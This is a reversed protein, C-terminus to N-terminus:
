RSEFHAKLESSYSSKYALVKIGMTVYNQKCYIPDDLLGTVQVMVWSPGYCNRQRCYERLYLFDNKSFNRDNRRIEFPKEGRIIALLHIIDCKLEHVKPHM